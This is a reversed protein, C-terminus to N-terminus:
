KSLGRGLSTVVDLLKIVKDSNTLESVSHIFLNSIINPHQGDVLQHLIEEMWLLSSVVAPPKKEAHSLPVGWQPNWLVHHM